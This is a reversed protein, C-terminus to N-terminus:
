AVRLALPVGSRRVAIQLGREAKSRREGEVWGWNFRDKGRKGKLGRRRQPSDGEKVELPTPFVGFVAAHLRRVVPIAGIEFVLPILGRPCSHVISLWRTGRCPRRVRVCRLAVM